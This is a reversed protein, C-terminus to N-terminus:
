EFKIETKSLKKKNKIKVGIYNKKNIVFSISFFNVKELKVSFVKANWSDTYM